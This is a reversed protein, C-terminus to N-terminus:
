QRPDIIILIIMTFLFTALTSVSVILWRVPYSPKEAEKAENVVFKQDITSQANVKAEAYIKRLDSLKEREYELQQVLSLYKGGFKSLTDLKNQLIRAAKDNNSVVAAGYQDSLVEVQTEYDQVGKSRIMNLTDEMRSIESTLQKYQAEVIGLAQVAVKNLMRNRVEDFMRAIENAIDAAYKADRDLVEIKVARYKTRYFDINNDYERNLQTLRFESEPDIKYHNMLDFKEMIHQRIVDSRLIQIMQEAEEEEGFELFDKEKYNEDNLLARSISTTTSPFLIVSSEYKDDIFFSFVLSCILALLTTTLLVIKWKGMFSLVGKSNIDYNSETM